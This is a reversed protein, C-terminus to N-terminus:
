HLEVRVGPLVDRLKIRCKNGLESVKTEAEKWQRNIECMQRYSVDLEKLLQLLEHMEPRSPSTKELATVLELAFIKETV